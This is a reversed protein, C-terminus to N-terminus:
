SRPLSRASRLACAGALLSGDHPSRTLAAHETPLIPLGLSLFALSAKVTQMSLLLFFGTETSRCALMWPVLIPSPHPPAQSLHPSQHPVLPPLPQTLAQLLWESWITCPARWGTQLRLSTTLGSRAGRIVSPWSVHWSCVLHHCCSALHAHWTGHPSITTGLLVLKPLLLPPAFCYLTPM